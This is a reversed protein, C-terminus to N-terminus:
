DTAREKAAELQELVRERASGGLAQRRELAAEADWLEDPISELRTDVEARQEPTLDSVTLGLIEARLVLAGALDHGEGFSLGTGVLHDAVDTALAAPDGPGAGSGIELTAVTGALVSLTSTLREETSFLALKDEQLDKNYGTPLGKLTALYGALTGLLLGGTARAIEAGDPNRKQPMLSSGTSYADAIRILSFERSSYVILDEALRSVDVAIQTWVFLLESVWDRAGVADLSNESAGSFGLAVALRRRDVPLSSGMGAAAGLPLRNM